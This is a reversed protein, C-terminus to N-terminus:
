YDWESIYDRHQVQDSHAGDQKADALLWECWFVAEQPVDTATNSDRDRSEAANLGFEHRENGYIM